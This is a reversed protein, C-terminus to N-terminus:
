AARSARLIAWLSKQWPCDAAAFGASKLYALQAAITEHFDDGSQKPEGFRAVNRDIWKELAPYFTAPIKGSSMTARMHDAWASVDALYAAVQEARVEDGNLLVGGPLLSEFCQHYLSSKEM